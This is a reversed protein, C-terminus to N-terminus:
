AYLRELEAAYRKVVERRKLSLKPTLLGNETKFDESLLALKTPREFPKFGAVLGAVEATFLDQVEVRGLLAAGRERLGRQAAWKEVEPLNACILAVNHPRDDGYIMANSVLPSLKLKEELLSPVVYKGNELKYQEKIRGTIYLFGEDDLRGLDGTRFGGDATFVAANEEPLRHYGKMVNHGYVIIEGNVPDESADTDIRITVGPIAKGVSGLRRAGPWNATAIPSTETLGYGEYVTIGLNDIFEAVERSLAAGGSFAYRLRGGLRDRVRQFVLRDFVRHKLEAIGSTRKREGLRKRLASNEMAAGFFQRRWAPAEASQSRIRDHLRHFVRPVSFLLTPRVEGLNAVLADVSEAIGMSAGKSFLGHLECTQGFSHAWPLFSLSRDTEDIPFVEHVASVNSAFNRHTLLVGKPKGTTGSTYIYGAIEEPEPREVAVPAARGRARVEDFGLAGASGVGGLEVIHELTPVSPRAALIADRVAANPVFLVKAGCDNLIYLWEDLHQSEYMPVYAARRGYTAYAAIAWEPRNDSIIAVRDTHGVGLAALGARVESTTAEFDRYTMWSWDDTGTRGSRQEGGPRKTGFLPREAYKRVALEYLEVLDTFRPQFSM